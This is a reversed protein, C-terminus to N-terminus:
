SEGGLPTQQSAPLTRVWTAIEEAIQGLPRRSTDWRATALSEYVPMRTEVLARWADTGGTLLPRKDNDLRAAVAEASITLLIVPLGRVAEAVAPTM